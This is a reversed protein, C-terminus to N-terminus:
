NVKAHIITSENYFPVIVTLLMLRKELFLTFKLSILIRILGEIRFCNNVLGKNISAKYSLKSTNIFKNLLSIYSCQFSM